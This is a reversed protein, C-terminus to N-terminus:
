TDVLVDLDEHHFDLLGSDIIDAKFFDMDMSKLKRYEIEKTPLCPKALDLEFFVTYHDSLLDNRVEISALSESDRTLVIDLTHGCKHTPGEVHQSLGTNDM